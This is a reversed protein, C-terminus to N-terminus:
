NGQSIKEMNSKGRLTETEQYDQLAQFRFVDEQDKESSDKSRLTKFAGQDKEM